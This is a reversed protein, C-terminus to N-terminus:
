GIPVGLTVLIVKVTVTIGATMTLSSSLRHSSWDLFAYGGLIRGGQSISYLLGNVDEYPLKTNSRKSSIEIQLRVRLGNQLAAKFLEVLM